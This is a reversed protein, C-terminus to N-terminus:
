RRLSGFCDVVSVTSPTAAPYSRAPVLQRVRKVLPDPPPVVTVTYSSRAMTM